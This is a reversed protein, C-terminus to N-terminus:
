RTCGGVAGNVAERVNPDEDTTIRLLTAAGQSPMPFEQIYKCYYIKANGTKGLKAEVFGLNVNAVRRNPALEVVRMLTTEANMYDGLRSYTDGLNNLAEIDSPNLRVAQEFAGKAELLKPSPGSLFQLGASNFARARTRETGTAAAEGYSGGSSIPVNAPNDASMPPETETDARPRGQDAQGQNLAATTSEPELPHQKMWNMADYANTSYYGILRSRGRDEMVYFELSAFGGVCMSVKELPTSFYEKMATLFDQDAPLAAFVLTENASGTTRVAVKVGGLKPIEQEQFGEAFQKRKESTQSMADAFESREHCNDPSPRQIILGSQPDTTVDLNPDSPEIHNTPTPQISPEIPTTVNPSPSISAAQREPQSRSFHLALIVGIGLSALCLVAIAAFRLMGSSSARSTHTLGSDAELLHENHQRPVESVQAQLVIEDESSFRGPISPHLLDHGHASREAQDKPRTASKPPLPQRRDGVGAFSVENKVRGLTESVARRVVRKQYFYIGLTILWGLGPVFCDFLMWFWFRKSPTYHTSATILTMVGNSKCEFLTSDRRLGSWFPDLKEATVGSSSREVSKAKARLDSELLDLVLSLEDTLVTETARFKM